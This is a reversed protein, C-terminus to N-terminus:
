KKVEAAPAEPAVAEPVADLAVKAMEEREKVRADKGVKDRLYFLRARRVDGHRVIDVKDVTPSNALFTKEVGIGASLKRVTFTENLAGGKRRIVTGEFVQIREKGGERVKASVKVVDGVSFVLKTKKFYKEQWSMKFEEMKGIKLKLLKKGSNRRM